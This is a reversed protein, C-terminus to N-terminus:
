RPLVTGIPNEIELDLFFSLEAFGSLSYGLLMYFEAYTRQDFAGSRYASGLKNLDGAGATRAEDIMWRVVANAKFRQVGHADIFTPYEIGGVKVMIVMGAASPPPAPRGAKCVDCLCDSGGFCERGHAAHKERTEEDTM